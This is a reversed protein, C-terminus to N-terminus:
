QNKAKASIFAKVVDLAKDYNHNNNVIIDVSDIFPEIYKEYSPMVHHKYRYLVDDIPYNREKQDRIIRRIIKDSDKAQILITLDLLESINPDQYIFLGEVILVSAPKFVLYGPEADFNNFTYEKRRVEKNSKLKKIDQVFEELDISQPLDFNEIGNADKFQEHLPRYYDDQSIVCLVEQSFSKKLDRIFSTKGSGSGGSIGIVFSM